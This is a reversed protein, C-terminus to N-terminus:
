EMLQEYFRNLQKEKEPKLGPIAWVTTQKANTLKPRGQRVGALVSTAVLASIVRGSSLYKGFHRFHTRLFCENLDSITKGMSELTPADLLQNAPILDDLNSAIIGFKFSSEIQGVAESLVKSVNNESYFKKCAIGVLDGEFSLVIDPPEQLKADFGHRVLISWLEIEWLVDKAKSRQRNLLTLTGSTLIKLFYDRNEVSRIPLVADAIRSCHAGNFLVRNEIEQGTLWCDSLMKADAILLALDSTAPLVVGNDAYLTELAVAKEKIQLYTESDTATKDSVFGTSVILGSATQHWLPRRTTM